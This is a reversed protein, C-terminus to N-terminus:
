LHKMREELLETNQLSELTEFSKEPVTEYLVGLAVHEQVNQGVGPLEFKPEVGINEIVDPRGIGSLELLQPSRITRCIRSM